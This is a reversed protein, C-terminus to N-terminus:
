MGARHPRKVRRGNAALTDFAVTLIKDIESRDPKVPLNDIALLADILAQEQRFMAERGPWNAQIRYCDECPM